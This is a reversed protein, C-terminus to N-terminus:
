CGSKKLLTQKTRMLNRSTWCIIRLENGVTGSMGWVRVIVINKRPKMALIKKYSNHPDTSDSQSYYLKILCIVMSIIKKFVWYWPDLFSLFRKNTMTHM